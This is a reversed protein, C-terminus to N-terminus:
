QFAIVDFGLPLRDRRRQPPTVPVFAPPDVTIDV